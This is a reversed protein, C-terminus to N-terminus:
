EIGLFKRLDPLFTILAIAGYLMMIAYQLKKIDKTLEKVTSELTRVRWDFLEDNHDSHEETM